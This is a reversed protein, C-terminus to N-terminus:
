VFMQQLLGKKWKQAVAVAQAVGAVKADLAMLFGAICSQEELSPVSVKLQVLKNVALGPQASSESLRNLNMYTLLQALWETDSSKDCQVAIAHESIYSKGSVRNINGCLAGQRGILVYFGDHTFSDTYGRLGNGGFVPYEGEELIHDATIGEGSKFTSCIDGLRKEEWEPFEGGDERKFRLEQSFLGQVVGKKYRELLEQKQALQQIKQDVAGLFAAIKQQEPLTPIRYKLRAFDTKNLMPVAQEGALASIAPGHKELLSYVFDDSFGAKSTIANIQQNTCCEEAAQGIKGITSGICVFLVSGKPLKRSREFGERTLTKEARTVYRLGTIDGPAVFMYEGDYYAPENTPPTSGTTISGVEALSREQWEGNFGNFRLKPVVQTAMMEEVQEM